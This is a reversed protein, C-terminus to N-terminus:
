ESRLARAPDAKAARNAPGYSAAVLTGALLVVVAILVAPDGAQVGSLMSSSVRAGAVGLVLGVGLGLAGLKLAGAVIARKVDAPRAGLALRIAIENSRQAVSDAVLGYIGVAAILLAIVAYLALQETFFRTVWQSREITQEMTLAEAVPVPLGIRKVGDRVAMAVSEPALRSEVVLIISTTPVSAYPRYLQHAPADGSRVMDKPRAVNEVVGVVTLWPAEGQASGAACRLSRGVVDPEGWLARALSTSIITVAAGDRMESATFARGTVFPVALADLYHGSISYRSAREGHQPEVPRSPTEVRIATSRRSPLGDAGGVRSIGDTGPLEAELRRLFDVRAPATEFRPGTLSLQMSYLGATRYGLDIEQQNWFSKVLLLAGIVLSTSLALEGVVLAGRLRATAPPMSTSRGGARLEDFLRKGSSRAVPALASGAGALLSVALTYLLVRADLRMDFLYPPEGPARGTMWDIWYVSIVAGAAGAAVALM